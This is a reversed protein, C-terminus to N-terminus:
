RKYPKPRIRKPPPVDLPGWRSPGVFRYLLAYGFSLLGGLFITYLVAAALYAYFNTWRTLPGLILILGSIDYISRPFQPNGLLQVPIPWGHHLGYNVTVMAAAFSILPVIVMILCGIGRWIPHPREPKDIRRQHYYASYKTM